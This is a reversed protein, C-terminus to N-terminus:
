RPSLTGTAAVFENSDSFGLIVWGRTRGAAMMGTWHALGGADAERELVNRYIQRVFADDTLAGYRAVFEASTTFQLAIATMPRGGLALGQWYAIGAADSERLFSAQYLRVLQDRVREDSAGVGSVSRIWDAYATVRMFADPGTCPTAGGSVVGAVREIGDTGRIILPGGSDGDCVNADAQGICLTTAADAGYLQACVAPDLMPASVWRAQDPYGGGTPITSGWGVMTGTGSAVPPQVAATMLPAVPANSPTALKLLAIDGRGVANNTSVYSPHIHVSAGAIRTGGQSLRSTGLLVDPPTGNPNLCHAATLVWSPAILAGACNQGQFTDAGSTIFAALWSPHTDRETGNIIYPAVTGTPDPPAPDAGAVGFPVLLLTALLAIVVRRLRLTSLM